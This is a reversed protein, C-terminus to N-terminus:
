SSCPAFDGPNSVCRREFASFLFSDDPVITEYESDMSAELSEIDANARLLERARLLLESVAGLGFFEYGALAKDFADRQITEAFDESEINEITDFVGGNMIHGHALLLAALARDGRSLQECGKCDTARNWVCVASSAKM